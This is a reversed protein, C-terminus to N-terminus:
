HLQTPATVFLAKAQTFVQTRPKVASDKTSNFRRIM